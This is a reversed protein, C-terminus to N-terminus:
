TPSEETAVHGFSTQYRRNDILSLPAFQAIADLSAPTVTRMKALALAELIHDLVLSESWYELNSPPVCLLIANPATTSPADTHFAIAADAEAAPVLESWRDLVLACISQAPDDLAGGKALRWAVFSTRGRRPTKPSGVWAEGADRPTQSVVLRHMTTPDDARLVLADLATM